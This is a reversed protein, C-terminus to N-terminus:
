EEIFYDSDIKGIKIIEKITVGVEHEIMLSTLMEGDILVISANSTNNAYDIAEKTFFATTMFVGKKARQGDLAGVFKQIEPRGIKAEKKWRKAQIYIKDLGLKDEKIIGDIGEDSSKKTIKGNTLNSEGYGMKILLDLVIEEFKYPSIDELNKLLLKSLEIKIRQYGEEIMEDPTQLSIDSQDIVPITEVNDINKNANIEKLFRITIKKPLSKIVQLGLTSIQYKGREPSFILGSNRLYSIAWAIRNFFLIQKGNPTKIKREEETIQFYKIAHSRLLNSDYVKGDQMKELLPLMATQFDPIM